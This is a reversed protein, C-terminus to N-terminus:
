ISQLVVAARVHQGWDRACLRSHLADHRRVGLLLLPLPRTHRPHRPPPRLEAGGRLDDRLQLHHRCDAGGAEARPQVVGSAFHVINLATKM